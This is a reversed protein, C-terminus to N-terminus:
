RIQPSNRYLFGRVLRRLRSWLGLQCASAGWIRQGSPDEAYGGDLTFVVLLPAGYRDRVVSTRGTSHPLRDATIYLGIECTETDFFQVLPIAAGQCDLIKTGPVHNDVTLKM